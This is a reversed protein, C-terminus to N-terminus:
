YYRGSIVIIFVYCILVRVQYKSAELMENANPTETIFSVISPGVSKSLPEHTMRNAHSKLVVNKFHILLFGLTDRNEIPLEMFLEKALNLDNHEYAEVFKPMLQFTLIPESIQNRLFDKIASCITNTDLIQKLMDHTVEGNALCKRLKQVEVTSGNIRYIGEDHLRSDVEHIAMYLGSPIRPSQTTSLFDSLPRKMLVTTSSSCSKNYKAKCDEHLIVGCGATCKWAYSSISIRKNCLTCTPSMMSLVRKKLWTHKALNPSKGASSLKPLAKHNAGGLKAKVPTQSTWFSDPDNQKKSEIEASKRRFRQSSRRKQVQPACRSISM